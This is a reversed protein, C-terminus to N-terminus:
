QRDVEGMQILWEDPLWEHCIEQFIFTIKKIWVVGDSYVVTYIILLDIIKDLEEDEVPDSVQWSIWKNSM